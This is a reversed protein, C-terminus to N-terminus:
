YCGGWPDLTCGSPPPPDFSSAATTSRTPGASYGVSLLELLAFLWPLLFLALPRRFSRLTMVM